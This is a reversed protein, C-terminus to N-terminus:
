LGIKPLWNGRSIKRILLNGTFYSYDSSKLHPRLQDITMENIYAPQASKVASERLASREEECDSLFTEGELPEPDDNIPFVEADMDFIM